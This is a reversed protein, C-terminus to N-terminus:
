GRSLRELLQPVTEAARGAQQPLHLRFELGGAATARDTVARLAAWPVGASRAVAAVAATEMDAACPGLFARALRLRRWLSLVPRDATLFSGAVGPAVEQWAALLGPDCEVERGERRAYDTQIARSGHVLVGPGLGRTLGGCTGVVLLARSARETLLLTAARAAQVKGVGSVCAVVQASGIELEVLELGWVVRSSREFRRLGGLEERLACVLGYRSPATASDM